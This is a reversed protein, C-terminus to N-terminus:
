CWESPIGALRFLEELPDGYERDFLAECHEYREDDTDDDDATGTPGHQRLSLQNGGKDIRVYYSKDLEGSKFAQALETLTTYKAPNSM